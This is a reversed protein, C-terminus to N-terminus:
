LKERKIKKRERVRVRVGVREGEWMLFVRLNKFQISSSLYVVYVIHILLHSLSLSFHSLSLSLYLSSSILHIHHITWTFYGVCLGNMILKCIWIYLAAVLEQEQQQKSTQKDTQKPLTYLINTYLKKHLALLRM